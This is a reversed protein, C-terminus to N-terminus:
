QMYLGFNALLTTGGTTTSPLSTQSAMSFSPKITNAYGNDKVAINLTNAGGITPATGSSASYAMCIFYMGEALFTPTSLQKSNWRNAGQTWMAPDNASSAVLTLTGNNFSYIGCGNYSTAVFSGNVIQYWRIFNITASKTLYVCQWIYTNSVMTYAVLISTPYPLGFPITKRRFNPSVYMESDMILGYDNINNFQTQIPSTVGNLYNFEANSVDGSAMRSADLYGNIDDWEIFGKSPTSLWGSADNFAIVDKAGGELEIWVGEFNDFVKISNTAM